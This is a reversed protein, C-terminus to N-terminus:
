YSSKSPIQVKDFVYKTLHPLTGVAPRMVYRVVSTPHFMTKNCCSKAEGGGRGGRIGDTKQVSLQLWDVYIKAM